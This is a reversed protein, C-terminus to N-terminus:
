RGRRDNGDWAERRTLTNTVKQVTESILTNVLGHYHERNKQIEEKLYKTNEDLKDAVLEWEKRGVFKDEMRQLLRNEFEALDKNTESREMKLRLILYSNAIGILVSVVAWIIQWTM